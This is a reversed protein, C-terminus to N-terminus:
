RQRALIGCKLNAGGAVVAGRKVDLGIGSSIKQLLILASEHSRERKQAVAHGPRKTM